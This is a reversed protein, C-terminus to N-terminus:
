AVVERDWTGRASRVPNPKLHALGCELALAPTEALCPHCAQVDQDVMFLECAPIRANNGYELFHVQVLFSMSRNRSDEEWSTYLSFSSNRFPVRATCHVFRDVRARFHEGEFPALYVRGKMLHAANKVAKAGGFRKTAGEAARRLEALADATAQGAYQVWFSTPHNVFMVELQVM